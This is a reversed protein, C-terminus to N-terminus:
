FGIAPHEAVGLRGTFGQIGLESVPLADGILEAAQAPLANVAGAEHLEGEALLKAQIQWPIGAGLHLLPDRDALLGQSWAVQQEELSAFPLPMDADEQPVALEQM